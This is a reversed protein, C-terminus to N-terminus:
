TVTTAIANMEVAITIIAMATVSDITTYIVDDIHINDYILKRYRQFAQSAAPKWM